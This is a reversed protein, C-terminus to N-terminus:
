SGGDHGGGPSKAVGRANSAVSRTIGKLSTHLAYATTASVGQSTVSTTRKARSM